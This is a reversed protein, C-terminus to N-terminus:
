FSGWTLQTTVANIGDVCDKVTNNTAGQIAAYVGTPGNEVSASVGIKAEVSANTAMDTTATTIAANMQETTSYLTLVAPQLATAAMDWTSKNADVTAKTGNYLQDFKAPTIGSNLVDSHEKEFSAEFASLDDAQLATSAKDWTSKNADVIDKVGQALAKAGVEGDWNSVQTSTILYAPKKEIVDVKGKLVGIDTAMASADGGHKEIYDVLETLGTITTEVDAAASIVEDVIDKVEQETTYQDLNADTFKGDVYGKADILAQAASNKADYTNNLDLATIKADIADSVEQATQAADAVGEVATMRQELGSIDTKALWAAENAAIYDTVVKVDADIAANMQETTSYSEFKTNVATEHATVKGELETKDESTLYDKEIEAIRSELSGVSLGSILADIEGKTYYNAIAASIKSDVEGGNVYGHDEIVKIRDEVPQNSLCIEGLYLRNDDTTFYFTKSDKIALNKYSEALGRLFKVDM